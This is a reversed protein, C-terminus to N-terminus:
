AVQKGAGPGPSTMYISKITVIVAGKPQIRPIRAVLEARARPAELLTIRAKAKSKALHVAEEFVEGSREIRATGKFQCGQVTEWDWASVAVKDPNAKINEITKNMFNDTLLIETDSLVKANGIPVVNPIGEKDVTALAWGRARGVIERMDDTIKVM